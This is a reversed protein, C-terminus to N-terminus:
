ARGFLWEWPAYGDKAMHVCDAVICGALVSLAWPMQQSAGGDVIIAHLVMLWLIPWCGVGLRLFTGPWISHSLRSRHATSLAYRKWWRVWFRRLWSGKHPSRTDIDNDCTGWLEWCPIAAAAVYFYWPLGLVISSLIGSLGVTAAAFVHGERNSNFLGM